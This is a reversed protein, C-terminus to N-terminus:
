EVIKQEAEVSAELSFSFYDDFFMEREEIEQNKREEKKKM